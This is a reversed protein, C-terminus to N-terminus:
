VCRSLCYREWVWAVAKRPTHLTVSTCPRWFRSLGVEEAVVMMWGCGSLVTAGVCEIRLSNDSYMSLVYINIILLVIFHSLHVISFQPHTTMSAPRRHGIELKRPALM